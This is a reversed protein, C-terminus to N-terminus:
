QGGKGFLAFLMIILLIAAFAVGAGNVPRRELAYTLEAVPMRSIM